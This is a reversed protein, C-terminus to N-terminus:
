AHEENEECQDDPTKGLVFSDLTMATAVETFKSSAYKCALKIFHNRDIAKQFVKSHGHLTQAYISMINKTVPETMHLSLPHPMTFGDLYDTIRRGESASFINYYMTDLDLYPAEAYYIEHPAPYIREIGTFTEYWQSVQVANDHFRVGDERFEVNRFLVFRHDASFKKVSTAHKLMETPDIDEEFTAVLLNLKNKVRLGVTLDYDPEQDKTIHLYTIAVKGTNVLTDYINRM